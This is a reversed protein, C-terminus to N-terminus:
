SDKGGTAADRQKKSEACKCVKCKGSCGCGHHPKIRLVRQGELAMQIGNRGKFYVRRSFELYERLFLRFLDAGFSEVGQLRDTDIFLRDCETHRERLLASLVLASDGDFVGELRLHLNGMSKRAQIRFLSQDM